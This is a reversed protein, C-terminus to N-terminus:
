KTEATSDVVVSKETIFETVMEYLINQKITTEGAAEEFADVDDYNAEKAFEALKEQYLEDSITMKEQEAILEVAYEQRIYTKADETLKATFEETTTGYYGLLTELDMGASTANYTYYDIYYSVYEDVEAQPYTNVTCKEMLAQWALGQLRSKQAEEDLSEEYSKEAEARRMEKYEDLTTCKGDTLKPIFEESFEPLIAHLTVSFIAPQGALDPNPTYTDPFTLNLEFTDGPMHGVIGEVFGDIANGAELVWFSPDAQDFEEGDTKKGVYGIVATDGTAAARDKIGIDEWITQMDSAVCQNWEDETMEYAPIEVELGKYQTITIKDNSIERNGCGALLTVMMIGVMITMLKKKM